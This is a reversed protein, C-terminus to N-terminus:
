KSTMIAPMPSHGSGVCLADLMRAQMGSHSDTVRASSRGASESLHKHASASTGHDDVDSCKVSTAGALCLLACLALVKWAKNM